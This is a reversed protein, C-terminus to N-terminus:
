VTEWEEEAAKAPKLGALGLFFCALGWAGPDPVHKFGSGGIYVSRGLSAVMGQTAEAAAKSAEAAKEVDGSEALTDVFPYLADVLTRDGPRAPTYRSLAECSQKLAAAWVKPTADGPALNSLAHVLANLFIAYIAGSTGDMAMEVVSVINAADVVADGTLPKTQLAELIAEAGRRLGIGCDGDGVVSDFRTVDPEAVIIYELGAQLAKTGVSADYVLGSPKVEGGSAAADERTAENKEEWTEKAIPAAWGTAECPYDLLQIMSPGGIDTNVVNLLSISFGLGNLSTMYTGSLIRVPQIGYDKDLQKVVETTIGGLELVSVGGLNNILLVVENSNVNLFARDKDNQDLLQKLMKGVLQPLEVEEKGNGAENHIGMGIEVEREGLRGADDEKPPARGPVHVHELSAGVSVLNAATLRAVKAVDALAYGQAALAGSIKHVLVTGAIGRRGVKGGKARGVGVDDGVVVMEVKRGAAHAKEVAMGFNLVDGTYNMVTVLVGKDHEVRSMIGTRIQEASPSAFITGAVAASLLGKGVMAAFSPEHGSGGGSIISVQSPGNPTPRRYIVKNTKDLALSPNTFTISELATNVLHAPDNIFHKGTGSM